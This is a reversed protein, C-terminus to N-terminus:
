ASEARKSTHATAPSQPRSRREGVRPAPNEGRFRYSARRTANLHVIMEGILGLAIAQVGIVLLLVGFLLVPRTAIGAGLIKTLFMAFLIIGGAFALGGGLLGFFRLPKDTFRLLFVLGMVDLLRRLYIGLRYTRPKMAAPHIASPIEEVVYGERRAVLPLFRVVDGYLRVNQILEPKMARVGCAVDHLRGGALGGVLAHLVRNQIRNIRADTRPWRWAVALDVEETRPVLELLANAEVQRYAPITILTCGRCHGAAVKLMSAESVSHGFELVRIPAGHAVLPRLEELLHTHAPVTAFIFEFSYGAAKLPASYEEFLGALPEPREIVPVLV